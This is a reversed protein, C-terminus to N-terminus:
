NNPPFEIPNNQKGTGFEFIKRLVGPAMASIPNVRLVPQGPTGVVEYTVGILGENSGGGLFLGVIPIQGFMNNLGYMPVFTGSMRVQNGPYDISGEITAGVSPGKVVGERISLQGNQRTFEARLRSFAVGSQGGSSGGAAVRELSSEGKVSFDFVNILGEKASPEVTPPDMALQLRGGMMKSYTDTFRFFAGGDNTELYIVDRGQARGRLDGTLPTDRGLKGSLTFSKIVGNRRSLKCDVSRLAEGFYGAVAGLKLDVDFDFSKSKNKPDTEKGSIASKLFGRGDFVEGRMIVKVVGDAGREAKLSTKDGESPSYTPFNANMLDANQDVELSGKISVGGGDIVIDEFRTSQPKQVVNFVARSSKGPLKVWGPLINDLKLSTLDADIGVRSDTGGIKGNVKIPLAGSVAPGLDLGLRARSADDLTAQLKIDADGENPKRYDLAASQGNIKVEGKVQYGGNNAVIKLTNAELKQNMVLRDAAFGGLDATINYTTDAKTLARKIPLGLTVLASVTGKSSNPDVLTGSFESLRDSALIEAAAPVPGDVRFKVRAPAPKPAMDPVEFVFDSINLKRGAPTDSVAQGITVTATRGTVHAKLDADRVAPMEDVPHLTVGSAVINVALGDDPIPPGRRSLNRLPSNLGVEIRQLSGREVREIVWERVEPVILTPWMRKLASASMPTGAFGLTVRPEASYDISATGAVGIEGNSIDAQTVVVRRRDTDFRLGIAIRNFILPPQDPDIGALVITGGSFGLQWDTISGNPPELHALLTIRNPGSVIKFPAVLVRRGSDWEVNVEASDIGMPYDPTDSDTINGSGATIKGRFYTPLGDRGLEGKLEGTLPLDSSYTLDKLRLALLINATPVKDARIDVSRVGNEPPGVAVRLSWAHSGEEGVSLAVGGGSPRRLSLSINEFNWKNGRQQDDVILNGNKLGIENLNQGDLGTLSLSDLWDLGALLGSAERNDPTKTATGPAAGPSAPSAPSGPATAAPQGQAAGVPQKKSAVGTALPRANDGTSVTVYGDPTIRVALEADVLNLSEARLRGMLLATGSLKVEAKPASAVVVHDRDRVIIDRIRVAIRIRGAREIQTGGVEVTNGHGINDEIAAALWPTAMELNIPGAGLRWWLGGFCVAFIVLLAALVVAVRKVWREGALWRRIAGLHDGIRHFGSSSNSLLLRARHRAAEDHDHDWSADDWQSHQVDARPSSGQPSTNKAM